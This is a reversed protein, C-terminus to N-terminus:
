SRRAIPRITRFDKAGRLAVHYLTGPSDRLRDRDRGAALPEKITLCDCREGPDLNCGCLPCIHYYAM